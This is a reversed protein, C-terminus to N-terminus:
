LFYQYGGGGEERGLSPIKKRLGVVGEEHPLLTPFEWSLKNFKM